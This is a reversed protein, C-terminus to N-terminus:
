EWCDRYDEAYQRFAIPERGLIQQVDDAIDEANGMRTITYLGAMVVLFMWPTDNHTRQWRAFEWLSPNAYTIPRELVDSLIDAVQFYTLAESGTLTYAQNEHGPECLTRAAVAGIDRVDIFSTRSEGAPIMLTDHDRIETRHTTDLNQMFFGARLFTWPIGSERLAEEISHHPVIPNDEVGQLSLFAIQQVQAGEAAALVPLVDREVNSMQPPRMLFLKDVGEFAPRLTDSDAFDLATYEIDYGLQAAARDPDRSGARVIVDSEDEVLYRVVESGVNGTAGSVLIRQTM